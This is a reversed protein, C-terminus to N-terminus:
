GNYTFYVRCLEANGAAIGADLVFTYETGSKLSDNFLASAHKRLNEKSGDFSNNKVVRNVLKDEKDYISLHVYNLTYDTSVTGGLAGKALMSDTPIQDLAIYPYVSVNDKYCELSVAVWGAQYLTAFTYKHDVWWTTNVGKRTKDFTDTQEICQLYSRNGNIKGNAGRSIVAKSAVMRVHTVAREDDKSIIVDGMDALAYSDYM